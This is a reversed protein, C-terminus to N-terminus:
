NMKSIFKLQQQTRIFDSIFFRGKGTYVYVIVGNIYDRPLRKFHVIVDEYNLNKLIWIQGKFVGAIFEMQIKYM